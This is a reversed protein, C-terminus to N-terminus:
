SGSPRRRARAYLRTLQDRLDDDRVEGMARAVDAAIPEAPALSPDSQPPPPSAEGGWSPLEDLAGVNFRLEGVGEGGPTRRLKGLLQEKLAHLEHSWASSGVRVYLIAGRLREGRAHARIRPGAAEWFARLARFSRAEDDLKLWRFLPDILAQSSLPKASPRAGSRARRRKV